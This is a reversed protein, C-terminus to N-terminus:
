DWRYHGAYGEKKGQRRGANAAGSAGAHSKQFKRGASRNHDEPADSYLTFVFSQCSFFRQVCSIAARASIKKFLYRNETLPAEFFHPPIHFSNIQCQQQCLGYFQVGVPGGQDRIILADRVPLQLRGNRGDRPRQLVHSNFLAILHGDHQGIDGFKNVAAKGNELGAGHSNQEVRSGRRVLEGVKEVVAVGFNEHRMRRTFFPILFDPVLQDGAAVDQRDIRRLMSEKRFIFGPNRLKRGHGNVGLIGGDDYIGGAQGSFRQPRHQRVSIEGGFEIHTVFRKAPRRVVDAQAQDGEKVGEADRHVHEVDDLCAAGGDHHVAQGHVAEKGGHLPFFDGVDDGNGAEVHAHDKVFFRGFVVEARELEADGAARGHRGIEDGNEFLFEIRANQLSVSERFRRGGAGEVPDLRHRLRSGDPGGEVADVNFDNIFVSLFHGAVGDAFQDDAAAVHHLAIVLVFRGGGGHQLVAPKVGPVQAPHVLFAVNEQRADLLSHNDGAAEIDVRPFHFRNQLQMRRHFFAADYAFLVQHAPLQHLRLHDQAVSKM